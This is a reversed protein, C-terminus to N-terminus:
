PMKPAIKELLAKGKETIALRTVLENEADDYREVLGVGSSKSMKTGKTSLNLAHRSVSM